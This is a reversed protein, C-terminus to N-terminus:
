AAEDKPPQVQQATMRQAAAERIFADRCAPCIGHSLLRTRAVSGLVTEDGSLTIGCWACVRIFISSSDSNAPM